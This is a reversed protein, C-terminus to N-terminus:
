EPRGGGPHGPLAKTQGYLTVTISTAGAIVHNNTIVEGDTAIIMGTGQDEQTGGGISGFLGEASNSAPGKADISVVEPLIQKVVTPISANGALAPGPSASGVKISPSGTGGTGVAEAIGAGAAGGILAAVLAVVLWRPSAPAVRDSPPPVSSPWAPPFGGSPPAPRPGGSTGSPRGLGPDSSSGTRHTSPAVGDARDPAGGPAPALQDTTGPHPRDTATLRSALFRRGPGAGPQSGGPDSATAPERAGDDSAGPARRGGDIAGTTSAPSRSARHSPGVRAKGSYLPRRPQQAGCSSNM